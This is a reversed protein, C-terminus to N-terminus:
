DEPLIESLPCELGLATCRLVGDPAAILPGGDAVWAENSYPDVIWLTGVGFKVVDELKSQVRSFRDEPSLVEIWLAPPTRVVEDKDDTNVLCVDPIRIRTPSIRVRQEPRIDRQHTEQKKALWLILNRQTKNHKTKGVNRDELVGDVYDCDPEYSTSLYEELPVFPTNVATAM